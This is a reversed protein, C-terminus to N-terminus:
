CFGMKLMGERKSTQYSKANLQYDLFIKTLTWLGLSPWSEKVFYLRSFSCQLPLFDSLRIEGSTRVMIDPFDKIWLNNQLSELMRTSPVQEGKPWEKLSNHVSSVMEATGSYSFCVNLHLNNNTSTRRTASEMERLINEPVLEMDGCLTVRIQHKDFFASKETMKKLSDKMLDMLTDLEEKERKYNDIAFAYITCKKVGLEMCLELIWKLRELGFRHGEVKKLGQGVAWRRNGDMIFAVHHPISGQKMIGLLVKEHFRLTSM